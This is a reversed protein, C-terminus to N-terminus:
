TCYTIIWAQPDLEDLHQELADLPMSLAGPIHGAAYSSPDRVDVFVATESDLARRADELSVRVIEGSAGAEGEPRTDERSFAEPGIAMAAIAALMWLGVAILLLAGMPFKRPRPQSM